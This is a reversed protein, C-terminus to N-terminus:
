IKTVEESGAGQERRIKIGEFRKFKNIIEASKSVPIKIKMIVCDGYNSSIIESEDDSVIRMIDNINKYDTTIEFIDNPVVQIIKANNLADAASTKYAQILGGKGLLTGGFYRVVVIMINTLGFSNIQGLIPKGATNAPEGDDNARISVSVPGIIRYAYCYHRAAHHEKRLKALIENTRELVSVPFAFSLFKSGKEKYIGQSPKSITSYIGSDIM